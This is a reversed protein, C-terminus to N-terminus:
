SPYFHSLELHLVIGKRSIQHAVLIKGHLVIRSQRSVLPHSRVALRDLLTRVKVAVMKRHASDWKFTPNLPLWASVFLHVRREHGM